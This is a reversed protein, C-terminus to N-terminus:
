LLFFYIFVISILSGISSLSAVGKVVEVKIEYTKAILYISIATPASQAVVLANLWYGDLHFIYKGVCWAIFPHAINKVTTLIMVEKSTANDKINVSGLMLGFVFLSLDMGIGGIQNTILMLYILYATLNFYNCLLGAIPMIILPTCLIKSIKSLLSASKHELFSLIAIFVAQICIVQVINGIIGAIPNGLLITIFPMVYIASNVYSSALIKICMQSLTSNKRVLIITLIAVICFSTLYSYIYKANFITDINYSATSYFLFCPMAIKFLFCEFGNIQEDSFLKRKKCILGLFVIGFIIIFPDM